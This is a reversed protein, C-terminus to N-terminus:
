CAHYIIYPAVEIKRENETRLTKTCNYVCVTDIETEIGRGRGRQIERQIEEEREGRWGDGERCFGRGDMEREGEREMERERGRERGGERGEERGGGRRGRGTKKRNLSRKLSAADEAVRAKDM